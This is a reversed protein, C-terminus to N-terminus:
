HSACFVDSLMRIDNYMSMLTEKDCNVVNDNYQFAFRVLGLDIARIHNLDRKMNNIKELVDNLTLSLSEQKVSEIISLEYASYSM